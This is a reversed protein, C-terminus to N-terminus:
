AASCLEDDCIASSLDDLAPPMLRASGLCGLIEDLDVTTDSPLRPMSLRVGCDQAISEPSFTSGPVFSEDLVKVLDSVTALSFLRKM